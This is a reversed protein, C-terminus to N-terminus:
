RGCPEILTDLEEIKLDQDRKQMVEQAQMLASELPPAGPIVNQQITYSQSMGVQRLRDRNREVWDM